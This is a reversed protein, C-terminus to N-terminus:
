PNLLSEIQERLGDADLSSPTVRELQGGTPGLLFSPTSDIGKEDAEAAAAEIASQPGDGSADALMQDADLGPISRGLAAIFEDSVWGTNEGGQNRYMLEIANWLKGQEGAALAMQAATVSDEGIFTLPRFEIRLQGDRVYDAVYVPLAERAWQACFPCQLDAFEVLTVPADPDGLAVGDQPIGTFLEEVEDAFALEGSATVEPKPDSDAGFTSAAILVGGLVAAIGLAIAVWAWTPVGGGAGKPRVPPPAARQARIRKGKAVRVNHPFRRPRADAALFAPAVSSTNDM